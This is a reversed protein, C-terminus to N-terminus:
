YTFERYTMRAFAIDVQLGIEAEEVQNRFRVGSNFQWFTDYSRVVLRKSNTEKSIADMFQQRSTM